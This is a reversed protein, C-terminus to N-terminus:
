KLKEKVGTNKINKLKAKKADYAFKAATKYFPCEKKACVMENLANCKHDSRYGFCDTKVERKVAKKM